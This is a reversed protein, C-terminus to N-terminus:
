FLPILLFLVMSAITLVAVAMSIIRLARRELIM